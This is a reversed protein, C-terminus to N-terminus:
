YKCSASRPGVTCSTDNSMVGLCAGTDATDGGEGRILTTSLPGVISPPDIPVSVIATVTFKAYASRSLAVKMYTLGNASGAACDPPVAGSYNRYTYRSSTGWWGDRPDCGSGPGGPPVAAAGTLAVLDSSTGRDRIVLQAGETRPNFPGGASDFLGTARFTVVNGEARHKAVVKNHWLRRSIGSPCKYPDYRERPDAGLMLRATGSGSGDFPVPLPDLGGTFTAGGDLSYSPTLTKATDDYDFALSFPGGVSAPDVPVSQGGLPFLSFGNVLQVFMSFGTIAPGLQRLAMDADFNAFALSAYDGGTPGIISFTAHVYQNVPLTAAQFDVQVRADGAGDTLIVPVSLVDSQITSVGLAPIDVETGPSILHLAGDIPTSNGLFSNFPIVFGYPPNPLGYQNIRPDFTEEVADPTGDHPGWVNGDIIVREVGFDYDAGDARVSSPAVYWLATWVAAIGAVIARSPSKATRM